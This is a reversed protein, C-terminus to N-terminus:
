EIRNVPPPQWSQKVLDEGPLYTRLMLFFAGEPAPLWNSQKDPGPSDNQVYITLSGDESTKMGSRDGLSYRNIPNAVLNYQLKYMTVSWFAGVKPQVGKGFKIEYRNRGTLQKGSEDLSANLYIAEEPDNAVFGALALIDRLLWDRTATPRGTAPPPYNWGNVQKQGYGAAFVDAIMKQTDKAARALGRKTSEEQAEVDIGPGIGIRTFSQLLDADREAPPVDIMARNMTKWDALPDQKPDFPPWIKPLAPPTASAKRWLSLPTLKYQDQIAYVTKLDDKGNVLTRGLIYAWVTSSRPLRVVGPPLTGKWDPGIIAYHGAKTGTTRVGVYAFNDGMFDAIEMTYYRDRNGPVSLIIPEDKLYVWTQSYLTDNNPAGGMTHSADKLERFHVFQNPPTNRAETRDWLARQMYVWPYGYLYAQVGLSYAYNEKWDPTSPEQANVTSLSTGCVAACVFIFLLYGTMSFRFSQGPNM